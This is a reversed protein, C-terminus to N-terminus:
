AVLDRGKWATTLHGAGDSSCHSGHQDSVEVMVHEDVVKVKIVLFMTVNREM